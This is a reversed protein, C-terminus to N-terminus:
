VVDEVPLTSSGMTPPGGSCVTELLLFVLPDSPKKEPLSLFDTSLWLGWRLPSHLKGTAATARAWGPMVTGAYPDVARDGGLWGEGSGGSAPGPEQATSPLAQSRGFELGILRSLPRVM